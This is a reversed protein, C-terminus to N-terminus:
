LGVKALVFAIVAAVVAWIAKDVLADIRRGPKEKQAEQYDVVKRINEDMTKLQEELKANRAIEERQWDYFNNHFAKSDQRWAELDEIRRELLAAKAAGICDRSPDKVCTEM